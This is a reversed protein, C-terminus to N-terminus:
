DVEIVDFELKGGPHITCKAIYQLELGFSNKASFEQTLERIGNQSLNTSYGLAHIDLTSPHRVNMRIARHCMDISESESIPEPLALNEGSLVQEPTFWINFPAGGDSDNCTVYYAGEKSSSRYGTTIYACDEEDKLVKLAGKRLIAKEDPSFAKEDAIDWYLGLGVDKTPESSLFDRRVWGTEWSVPSGSSKTIKGRVWNDSQCLATLEQTDYLQRYVTKGFAQSAKENVVREATIGPETRFNVEDAVVYFLGDIPEGISCRQETPEKVQETYLESQKPENSLIAELFYWVVAVTLGVSVFKYWPIHNIAGCSYCRFETRILEAGCKKCKVMKM